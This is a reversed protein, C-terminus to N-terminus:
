KGQAFRELEEDAGVVVLIDGAEIKDDPGPVDNTTEKVSPEGDETLFQIRKKIAIINIKYRHRIDLENLKKNVMERPAKMEILSHGSSLQLQDIVDPAVMTKAVQDAMQEEILVTRDAGVNRLIQAYLETAARAVIYGAGLRKLLATTLIAEEMHEGMAVVVADLDLVGSRALPDEQTADLCVARTVDEKVSEVKAPDRDIAVVESGKQMLARAVRQGFTGLGIVAFQKM